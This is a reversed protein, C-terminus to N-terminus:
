TASVDETPRLLPKHDASVRVRSTGLVRRDNPSLAKETAPGNAQFLRGM